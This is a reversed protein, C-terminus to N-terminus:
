PSGRTLSRALAPALISVLTEPSVVSRAAGRDIAAQPMGNVVCSEADQAFTAGGAQCIALLGEAGDSGMGTLV